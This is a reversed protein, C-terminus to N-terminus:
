LPPFLVFLLIISIWNSFISLLELSTSLAILKANVGRAVLM